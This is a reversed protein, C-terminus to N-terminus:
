IVSIKRVCLTLSHKSHCLGDGSQKNISGPPATGEGKLEDKPHFWYQTNTGEWVEELNFNLEKLDLDKKHSKLLIRKVHGQMSGVIAQQGM